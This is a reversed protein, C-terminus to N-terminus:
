MVGIWRWYTYSFLIVVLVGALTFPIGMRVTDRIEFTNSSYPLLVHPANVPLVFSFYTIYCSVLVIGWIPLSPNNMSLLLGLVTPVVTVAASMVSSFALRIIIIAVAIVGVMVPVNLRELGMSGLSVKAMWVAAGSSFIIEGLSLGAGFLLIAGWEVKGVTDKWNTVGFYPLMMTTASLAAITNSDVGHLKETAWLVITVAFIVSIKKENKSMKGLDAVAKEIGERGGPIETFEFKNFRTVLFFLIVCMVMVLPYSYVFWDAWSINRNLAKSIIGVTFPNSGGASLVGIGSLATAFGVTLMTMKAFVSKRDLKLATILGLATPTLTAARAVLSPMVFSLLQPIIIMAALFHNTKPGVIQLVKLALRKELGTQIIIAAIFLGATVLVWGPNAFGNLALPIAKITGLKGVTASGAPSIGLFIILSSLILMSSVPYSVAEAIWLMVAFVLVAIVRQGAVTLGVPKPMFAIVLMVVFSFLLFLLKKNDLGVPVGHNANPPTAGHTPKTTRAEKETPVRTKADTLM